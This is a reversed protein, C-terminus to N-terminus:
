TLVYMYMYTCTDKIQAKLVVAFWDHLVLGAVEEALARHATAMQCNALMPATAVSRAHQAAVHQM